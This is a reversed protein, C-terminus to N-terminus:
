NRSTEPAAQEDTLRHKPSRLPMRWLPPDPVLVLVAVPVGVLMATNESWKLWISVADLGVVITVFQAFKYRGRWLRRAVAEWSPDVAPSPTSADTAPQEINRALPLEPATPPWGADSAQRELDSYSGEVFQPRVQSDRWTWWGGAHEVLWRFAGSDFDPGVHVLAYELDVRWSACWRDESHFEMFRRLAIRVALRNEEEM